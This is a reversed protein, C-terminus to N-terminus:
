IPYRPIHGAIRTVVEYHITNSWGAIEDATVEADGDRGLLTVVEDREVGPIDTVDVMCMNMCVRGRIPARLGRVLVEGRNSLGRDYGEYYGVPIIALRTPRQTVYTCGYGIPEGEGVTKVQAIRARWNLAPRLTLTPEIAERVEPSPWLGYSAIGVRALSLARDPWLLTAASNAIHRMLPAGWLSEISDSIEHLRSLQREAFRHDSTDEINAFHSTVGALRLKGESKILQTLAIAEAEDIGQRHNGTEVKLHLGVQAVKAPHALALASLAEVHARQYIVVELGLAVVEDLREPLTPGFLYIPHTIGGRRLNVAEDITHVCLWDAGGEIFARASALAGHGYGNSKVAPALKCSAPLHRRLAEANQALAHTDLECWTLAGEVREKM